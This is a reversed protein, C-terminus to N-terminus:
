APSRALSVSLRFPLLNKGSHVKCPYTSHSDAAASLM